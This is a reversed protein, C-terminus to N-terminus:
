KANLAEASPNPQKSSNTATFRQTYKNVLCLVTISFSCGSAVMPEIVRKPIKGFTLKQIL